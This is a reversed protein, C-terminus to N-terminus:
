ISSGNLMDLAAKREDELSASEAVGSSLSDYIANIIDADFNESDVYSLNPQNLRTCANKVTDVCEAAGNQLARAFI